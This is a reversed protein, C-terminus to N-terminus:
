FSPRFCSFEGILVTYFLMVLSFALGVINYIIKENKDTFKAMKFPIILLIPSVVLLLLSIYFITRDSEPNSCNFNKAAITCIRFPLAIFLVCYAAYLGFNKLRKILIPSLSKKM